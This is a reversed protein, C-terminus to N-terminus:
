CLVPVFGTPLIFNFFRKRHRYHGEVSRAMEDIYPELKQHLMLYLEDLNGESLSFRDPVELNVM